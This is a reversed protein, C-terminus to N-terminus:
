NPGANSGLQTDWSDKGVSGLVKCDENNDGSRISDEDDYSCQDLQIQMVKHIKAKHHYCSHADKDVETDCNSYGYCNESGTHM